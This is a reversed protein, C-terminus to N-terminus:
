IQVVLASDASRFENMVADPCNKRARLVEFVPEVDFILDLFLRGPNKKLDYNRENDGRPTTLLM